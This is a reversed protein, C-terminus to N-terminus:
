LGFSRSARARLMGIRRTPSGSSMAGATTNRAPSPARKMVPWVMETLPPRVMIQLAAAHGRQADVPALPDRDDGQGPGVPEVGDAAVGQGVEVGHQGRQGVIAVDARQHDGSLAAGERAPAFM